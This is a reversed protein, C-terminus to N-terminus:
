VAASGAQDKAKREEHVRAEQPNRGQRRGGRVGRAQLVGGGPVPLRYAQLAEVGV